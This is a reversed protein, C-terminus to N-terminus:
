LVMRAAGGAEVADNRPRWRALVLAFTPLWMIRSQYRDHPNSLAGCIIANGMLAVFVFAPLAVRAWRRRVVGWVLLLGLGCLSIMGVAEHVRNIPGFAFRVQQQRATMYADLQDPVYRAFDPHLVWQQPEIQDGTKFMFFQSLASHFATRIHMLPYLRLSDAIIERSEDRTGKFRDLALFPSGQGWLWIDATKPLTDKYACLAYGSAPCTEDLLRKVIGDQLIRGFVFVSGAKSIFVDRTLAFNSSLVIGLGIAFSLAALGARPAATKRGKLALVTWRLLVVFIALGAALGLHSSHTAVAIAAVAVLLFCRARGLRVAHFSVLYLALAVVATMCDPVIQGVYWALGTGFTLGICLVVLAWIPLQPAEMRATQTIVFGTMLAQVGVTLWLSFAAGTMWLFISYGASREVVFLGGLGQAIYAGTDYFTLPFGNWLAVALLFPCLLLVTISERLPSDPPASVWGGNARLRM